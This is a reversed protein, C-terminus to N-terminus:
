IVLHLANHPSSDFNYAIVEVYVLSQRLLLGTCVADSEIGLLQLFQELVIVPLGPGLQLLKGLLVDKNRLCKSILRAGTLCHIHPFKVQAITDAEVRNCIIIQRGLRYSM